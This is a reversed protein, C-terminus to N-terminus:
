SLLCVEPLCLHYLKSSIYNPGFLLSTLHHDQEIDVDHRLFEVDLLEEKPTRELYKLNFIYVVFM